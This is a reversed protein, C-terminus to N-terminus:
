VNSIILATNNGGFGFYNLLFHGKKSYEEGSYLDLGYRKSAPDTKCAKPLKGRIISEYFLILENTGCAGLTHGLYPKLAVVPPIRSFIKQLGLAESEDNSLSATGHVKVLSLQEAQLNANDLAQQIVAAVSSGDSNCATISFHDGLNAGACFHFNHEAPRKSLVIASSGEGLILGDRDDRFPRMSTQSILELGGFGLATLENFFELGIVLATDIDGRRIFEAAYMLANASSTCATNINFHPGGIKFKQSIHESFQMYSPINKSIEYDSLDTEKIRQECSFIDYSTSGIFLAMNSREQCSIDSASLAQEVVSDIIYPIREVGTNPAPSPITRYPIRPKNDIHSFTFQDPTIDNPSSQLGEINQEINNGLASILGSGHFYVKNDM